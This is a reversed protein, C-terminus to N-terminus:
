KGILNYKYKETVYKAFTKRLYTIIKRQFTNVIDKSM